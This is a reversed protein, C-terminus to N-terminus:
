HVISEMRQLQWAVCVSVVLVFVVAGLVGIRPVVASAEGSAISQPEKFALSEVRVRLLAGKGAQLRLAALWEDESTIRCEDEEDDVFSFAVDQESINHFLVQQSVASSWCPEPKPARHEDDDNPMTVRIRHFLQESPLLATSWDFKM